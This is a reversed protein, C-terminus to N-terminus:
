TRRLTNPSTVRMVWQHGRYCLRYPGLTRNRRKPKFREGGLFKVIQPSDANKKWAELPDIEYTINRHSAQDEFVWVSCYAAARPETRGDNSRWDDIHRFHGEPDSIGMADIDMMNAAYIGYSVLIVRVTQIDKEGLNYVVMREARTHVLAQRGDEAIKSEM